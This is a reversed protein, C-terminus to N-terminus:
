RGPCSLFNTYLRATTLSVRYGPDSLLCIVDPAEAELPADGVQLARSRLDDGIWGLILPSPAKDTATVVRSM